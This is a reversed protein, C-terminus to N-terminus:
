KASDLCVQVGRSKLSKRLFKMDPKGLFYKRLSYLREDDGFCFSEFFKERAEMETIPIHTAYTLMPSRMLNMRRVYGRAESTSLFTSDYAIQWTEERDIKWGNNPMSVIDIRYVDIM